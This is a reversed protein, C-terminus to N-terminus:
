EKIKELCDHHQLIKKEKIYNSIYWEVRKNGRTDEKINPHKDYFDAETFRAGLDLEKFWMEFHSGKGKYKPNKPPKFVYAPSVADKSTSKNKNGERQYVIGEHLIATIEGKEMEYIEAEIRYREM